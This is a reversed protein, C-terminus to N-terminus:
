KFQRDILDGCAIWLLRDLNDEHNALEKSDWAGFEKLESILLEPDISKLQNDIHAMTRLEAIDLDCAGSHYGKGAENMSLNLAIRGSSSEWINEM